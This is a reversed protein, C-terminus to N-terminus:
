RGHWHLAAAAFLALGALLDCALAARAYDTTAM